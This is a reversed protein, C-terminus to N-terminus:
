DAWTTFGIQGLHLLVLEDIFLLASLLAYLKILEAPAPLQGHAQPAGITDIM